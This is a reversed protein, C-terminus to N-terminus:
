VQKLIASLWSLKTSWSIEIAGRSVSSLLCSFSLPPRPPENTSWGSWVKHVWTLIKILGSLCLSKKHNLDTSFMCTIDSHHGESAAARNLPRWWKLEFFLNIRSNDFVCIIMIFLFYFTKLNDCVGIHHM